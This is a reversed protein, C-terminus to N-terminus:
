CRMKATLPVYLVRSEMNVRRDRDLFGMDEIYSLFEGQPNTLDGFIRARSPCAEVCAPLLGKELRHLCFDCADARNGFRSDQIRAGHPCAKVCNGDGTCREWDTVVMGCSLKFIAGNPCAFLCKPDKCHHCLVPSSILRVSPCTGVEKSVIRTLFGGRVTENEAKCAIVCSQCGMCRNLDIIMAWQPVKESFEPMGARASGPRAMSLFFIGAGKLLDRRSSMDASM